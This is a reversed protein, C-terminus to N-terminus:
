SLEDRPEHRFTAYLMWAKAYHLCLLSTFLTFPVWLVAHLWYPPAYVLEAFTALITTLGGVVWISIVAPADGNETAQFRGRVGSM